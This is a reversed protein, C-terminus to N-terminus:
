AHSIYHVPTTATPSTRSPTGTPIGLEKSGRGFGRVVPAAILLPLHATVGEPARGREIGPSSAPVTATATTTTTASDMRNHQQVQHHGACLVCARVCVGLTQLHRRQKPLNTKEAPTPTFELRPLEEWGPRTPALIEEGFM